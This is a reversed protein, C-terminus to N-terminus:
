LPVMGIKLTEYSFKVIEIVKYKLQKTEMKLRFKHCRPILSKNRLQYM